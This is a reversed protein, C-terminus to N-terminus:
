EDGNNKRNQDRMFEEEFISNLEKAVKEAGYHKEIVAVVEDAHGEGNEAYERYALAVERATMSQKQIEVCLVCM